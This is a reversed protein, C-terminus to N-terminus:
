QPSANLVIPLTAVDAFDSQRKGSGCAAVLATATVVIAPLALRFRRRRRTSDDRNAAPMAHEM